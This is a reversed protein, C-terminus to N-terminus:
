SGAEAEKRTNGKESQEPWEPSRTEVMPAKQERQGSNGAELGTVM